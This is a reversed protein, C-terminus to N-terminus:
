LMMNLPNIILMVFVQVRVDPQGRRQKLDLCGVNSNCEHLGIWPMCRLELFVQLVQQAVEVLNIRTDTFRKFREPTPLKVHKM